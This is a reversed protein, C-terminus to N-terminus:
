FGLAAVIAKTTAGAAVSVATITYSNGSVSSVYFGTANKDEPVVAIVALVLELNTNVTASVDAAATGSNTLSIEHIYLKKGDAFSVYIPLESTVALTAPMTYVAEEVKEESTKKFPM